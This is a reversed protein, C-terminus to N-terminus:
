FPLDDTEPKNNIAAEKVEQLDSLIGDPQQEQMESALLRLYNNGAKSKNIWGALRYRKGDIELNGTYDPSTPKEKKNRYLTGGNKKNEM